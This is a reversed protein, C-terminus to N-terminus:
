THRCHVPRAREWIASFSPLLPTNLVLLVLPVAPDILDKSDFAAQSM